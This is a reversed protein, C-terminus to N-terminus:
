KKDEQKELQKKLEKIQKDQDIVYLTLEEIKQLLKIQMENVNVGKEIMEKESPIEPLHKNEKVFAEVEALPKLNYSPEFVFDAGASITINVERANVPGAIDAQTAKIDGNVHLKAKPSSIGIGLGGGNNIFNNDGYHSSFYTTRISKDLNITRHLELAMGLEGLESGGPKLRIVNHSYAGKRSGINFDHGEYEIYTQYLNTTPNRDSYLLYLKGAVSLNGNITQNQASISLSFYSIVSILLFIKKM